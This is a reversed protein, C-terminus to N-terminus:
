KDEGKTKKLGRVGGGKEAWKNARVAVLPDAEVRLSVSPPELDGDSPGDALSHPSALVRLSGVGKGISIM